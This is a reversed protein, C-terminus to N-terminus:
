PAARSPEPAVPDPGGAGGTRGAGRREALDLARQALWLDHVASPPRLLSRQLLAESRALRKRVASPSLSLAAATPGIRADLRLWTALTQATCDPVGPTRLPRFQRQAWAVVHPRALLEDLSPAAGTTDSTRPESGSPVGTAIARLALALAAQDPLRDLDLSLLRQVHTLRATLTNRHIKLHATARSSFNLWSTVTALLETSDPDQSRRASHTRLPALFAAAWAEAPPGITLALDPDAAFSAHRETRQRAAALAHFAQAYGIATDRLPVPDSVGIWCADTVARPWDPETPIGPPTGSDAPVLVALHDAYVPCPVIWADDFAGALIDAVAGRIARPGEVLYLRVRDPLAPRLAEAVQRAATVHGNMLLHLVAERTRADALRLWRQQRRAHEVQWCLSLCSAADALLLGLGPPTPRRLVTALLPARVGPPADLPLVFCALDEEDIAVSKLGRATIERVGHRVLDHEARGLPFPLPSTVVGSRNVLFATAGTRAALWRLLRATGGKRAARQLNLVDEARRTREATAM